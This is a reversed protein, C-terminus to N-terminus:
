WDAGATDYTGNDAREKLIKEFGELRGTWYRAGSENGAARYEDIYRQIGVMNQEIRASTMEHPSMCM